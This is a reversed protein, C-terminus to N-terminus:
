RSRTNRRIRELVDLPIRPPRGFPMQFGARVLGWQTLIPDARMVSLRLPEPFHRLLKVFFAYPHAQFRGAWASYRGDTVVEFEAVLASVPATAYLLAVDGKLADKHGTWKYRHGVELPDSLYPEGGWYIVWAARPADSM